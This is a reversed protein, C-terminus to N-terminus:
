FNLLNSVYYCRSVLFSKSSNVNTCQIYEDTMTVSSVFFWSVVLLNLKQKSFKCIWWTFMKWIESFSRLFPSSGGLYWIKSFFFKIWFGQYIKAIKKFNWKRLIGSEGAAFLLIQRQHLTGWKRGWHRIPNVYM